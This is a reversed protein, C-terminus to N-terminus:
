IGLNSLFNIFSSMSETLKPHSVEFEEIASELDNKSAALDADNKEHPLKSLESELRNIHKLIEEKKNEPLNETENILVQLKNIIEKHPM